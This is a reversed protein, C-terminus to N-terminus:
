TRNGTQDNQSRRRSVVSQFECGGQAARSLAHAIEDVLRHPLSGAHNGSFVDLGDWGASGRCKRRDAGGERDRTM